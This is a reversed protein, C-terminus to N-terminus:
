TKPKLLNIFSGPRNSPTKETSKQVTPVCKNELDEFLEWLRM